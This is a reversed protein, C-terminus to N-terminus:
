YQIQVFGEDVRGSAWEGVGCASTTPEESQAKPAEKALATPSLAMRDLNYKPPSTCGIIHVLPWVHVVKEFLHTYGQARSVGPPRM